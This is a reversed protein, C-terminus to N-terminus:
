SLPLQCCAWFICPLTVSFQHKIIPAYPQFCPDHCHDPSKLYLFSLSSCITRLNGVARHLHGVRGVVQSSSMELKQWLHLKAHCATGRCGQYAVARYTLILWCQHQNKWYGHMVASSGSKQIRETPLLYSLWNVAFCFWSATIYNTSGIEKVTKKWANWSRSLTTGEKGGRVEDWQCPRCCLMYFVGKQQSTTIPAASETISISALYQQYSQPPFFTNM